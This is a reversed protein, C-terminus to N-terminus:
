RFQPVMHGSGHFTVFSLGEEYNVVEGGYQAGVSAILICNARMSAFKDSHYSIMQISRVMKRLLTKDSCFV